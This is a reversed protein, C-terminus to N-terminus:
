GLGSIPWTSACSSSWRPRFRSLACAGSSKPPGAERRGNQLEAFKRAVRVMGGDLDLDCARLAVLEGWRLGTVAAFLVLARYRADILESLAVVGSVSGVPRESTDEKDYGRIRCPNEAILRDEKM